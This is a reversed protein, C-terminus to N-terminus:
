GLEAGYFIDLYSGLFIGLAIILTMAFFVEGLNRRVAFMSAGSAAMMILIGLMFILRSFNKHGLGKTRFLWLTVVTTTFVLAASIIVTAMECVTLRNWKERTKGWFSNARMERSNDQPFRSYLSIDPGAVNVPFPPPNTPVQSQVSSSSLTQTLSPSDETPASGETSWTIQREYPPDPQGGFPSDRSGGNPIGATQFRDEYNPARIATMTKSLDEMQHM